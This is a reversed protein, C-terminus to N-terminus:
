KATLRLTSVEVGIAKGHDSLIETAKSNLRYPIGQKEVEAKLAKMIHPGPASGDKTIHFYKDEQFRGFPVGLQELWDIIEGGKRAYTEVNAKNGTKSVM